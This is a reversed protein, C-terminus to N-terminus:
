HEERSGKRHTFYLMLCGALLSYIGYTTVGSMKTLGEGAVAAGIGGAQIAGIGFGVLFGMVSYEFAHLLEEPGGYVLAGICAICLAGGAIGWGVPTVLTGAVALGTLVGLGVGALFSLARLSVKKWDTEPASAEKIKAAIKKPPTLSTTDMDDDTKLSSPSALPQAIPIGHPHSSSGSSSAPTAM